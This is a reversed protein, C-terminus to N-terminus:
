LECTTRLFNSSPAILRDEAWTDLGLSQPYDNDPYDNDRFVEKLLIYRASHYKGATGHHDSTM